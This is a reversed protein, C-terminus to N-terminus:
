RKPAIMEEILVHSGLDHDTVVAEKTVMAEDVEKKDDMQFIEQAKPLAIAENPVRTGELDNRLHNLWKQPGEFSREDQVEKRSNCCLQIEFIKDHSFSSWSGLCPQPSQSSIYETTNM